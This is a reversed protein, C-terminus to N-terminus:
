SIIQRIIKIDNEVKKIDTSVELTIEADEPILKLIGVIDLDSDQFSLHAMDGVRMRQGGLHYHVPKLEVFERIMDLPDQKLALATFIAHNIDLCLGAGTAKMISATEEPTTCLYNGILNEVLIRKDKLKKVFSVFTERSCNKDNIRGPHLIIRKAKCSDAVKRASEFSATNKAIQTSDANNIGLTEHQAHIVVPKSLTKVFDYNNGDAVMVEFFDVEKGFHKLFEPSSYTKVGIKM